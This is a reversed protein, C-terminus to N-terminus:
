GKLATITLRRMIAGLMPAAGLPASAACARLHDTVVAISQDGLREVTVLPRGCGKCAVVFRRAATDPLASGRPPAARATQLRRAPV